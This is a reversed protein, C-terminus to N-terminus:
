RKWMMRSLTSELCPILMALCNHIVPLPVQDSTEIGAHGFIQWFIAMQEEKDEDVNCVFCMIALADLAQWLLRFLVWHSSIDM